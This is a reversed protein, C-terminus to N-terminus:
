AGFNIEKTQHQEEKYKQIYDMYEKHEKEFKEVQERLMDLQTKFRKVRQPYVVKTKGEKEEKSIFGSM